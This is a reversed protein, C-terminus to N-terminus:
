LHNKIPVRSASLVLWLSGPKSIVENDTKKNKLVLVFKM